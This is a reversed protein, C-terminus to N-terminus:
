CDPTKSRRHMARAADSQFKRGLDGKSMKKGRSIAKRALDRFGQQRPTPKLSM